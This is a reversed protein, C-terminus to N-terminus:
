PAEIRSPEPKTMKATGIRYVDDSPSACEEGGRPEGGDSAMQSGAGGGAGSFCAGADSPSHERIRM